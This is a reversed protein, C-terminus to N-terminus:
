RSGRAVLVERGRAHAELALFVAAANNNLVLAAEAGTVERIVDAIHNSRSGRRGTALDYELDSYGGAAANVAALARESLPARGLNTHVIVGTANIVPRPADALVLRARLAGAEAIADPSAARQGLAVAGRWWSSRM